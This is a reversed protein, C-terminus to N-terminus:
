NGQTIAVGIWNSCHMFDVLRWLTDCSMVVLDCRKVHKKVHLLRYFSNFSTFFVDIMM